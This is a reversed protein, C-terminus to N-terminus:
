KTVTLRNIFHRAVTSLYRNKLWIVAVVATKIPPEVIDKFILKSGTVLKAASKHVFAVGLGAEAWSLMSRIDDQTCFIRPTLGLQQYHKLLQEGYKRYVIFPKDALDVLRVSSASIHDDWKPAFAAVVPETPLTIAFYKELDATLKTIGVDIIGRQLLDDIKYFDEERLQFNVKPYAEHFKLIQELLLTSGLTTGWPMALGIALTGQLGAAADKVEKKTRDILDLIQEARSCLAQGADTLRIKRSGKREILQVGLETEFLKLQQSLPPQAMHLNKAAQTIQGEEVVALFYQLRKIDM